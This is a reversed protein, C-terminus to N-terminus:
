CCAPPYKAHSQKHLDEDSVDAPKPAVEVIKSFSKGAQEAYVDLAKRPDTELLEKYGPDRWAMAHIKAWDEQTPMTM